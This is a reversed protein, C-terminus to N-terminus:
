AAAEPQPLSAMGLALLVALLFCFYDGILADFLTSNFLCVVALIAILSYTAHRVDARFPRADRVLALGFALLLMIGGVGLHVGWLLYEQHPNHMTAFVPSLQKGEMRRYVTNWSGVGHGALPRERIAQLARHWLSLRIGSSTPSRDGNTYAISETAVATIRDRFHPSLAMVATVVLMPLLVAVPRARRPVAWFLSLVMAVVLAVQASRGPLLLLVNLACLVVLAIAIRPGHRGPFENRLHWALSALGVTMISQDLYSSSVTAPHMRIWLPKVVWPVSVGMALLYSTFVVFSEVGVYIGLTILAERRQRVLLLVIPIVLLKSYKNLGQLADAMPATTWALSLALVLLMVGIVVPTRLRALAQPPERRLAAEVLAALAFLLMLVKGINTGALSFPLMAATLYLPWPRISEWSIRKSVRPGSQNVCSDIIEAAGARGSPRNRADEM